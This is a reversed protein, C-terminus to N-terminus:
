MKWNTETGHFIAFEIVVKPEVRAGRPCFHCTTLLNERSIGGEVWFRHIKMRRVKKGRTKGNNCWRRAIYM